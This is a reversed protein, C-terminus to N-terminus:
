EDPHRDDEAVPGTFADNGPAEGYKFKDKQSTVTATFGYFGGLGTDSTFKNAVEDPNLDSRQLEIKVENPSGFADLFRLSMFRSLLKEAQDQTIARLRYEHLIAAVMPTFYARLFTYRIEIPIPDESLEATYIGPQASYTDWGGYSTFTTPDYARDHNELAAFTYISFNHGLEHMLTSVTVKINNFPIVLAKESGEVAHLSSSFIFVFFLSLLAIFKKM